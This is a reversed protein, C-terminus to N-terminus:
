SRAFKVLADFPLSDRREVTESVRKGNVPKSWCGCAQSRSPCYGISAILRARGYSLSNGQFAARAFHTGAAGGGATRIRRAGLARSTRVRSLNRRQFALLEHK